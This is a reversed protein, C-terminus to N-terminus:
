RGWNFPKQFIERDGGTDNSRLWLEPNERRNFQIRFETKNDFPDLVDVDVIANDPDPIPYRGEWNPAHFFVLLKEGKDFNGSIDFSEKIEEILTVDEKEVPPSNSYSFVIVGVFM